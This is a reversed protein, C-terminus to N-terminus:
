FRRAAPYSTTAWPPEQAALSGAWFLLPLVLFPPFCLLQRIARNANM